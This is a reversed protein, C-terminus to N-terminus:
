PLERTVSRGSWDLLRGFARPRGGTFRQHLQKLHEIDESSWCRLLLTLGAYLPVTLLGAALLTPLAPWHGRLPSIAVATIAAALIIRLLRVWNPQMGIMRLALLLNAMAGFLAASVYAITAGGLGYARILWVDLVIKIVGIAVVLILITIQRDASILLSSGSQSVTSLACAFLCVAFVPAAPAYQAGYMFAIIPHCFVAGFAVLPAALLVLYTTSAVFRRGAVDRGQSLANAMMPLLMAGIVGPVLMAAGSALLYAVKFHGASDATGFMNLFFVEVESAAFFGITVTVAVLRMHRRVRRMLDDPLQTGPPTPPILPATQRQSMGYFIASSVLFVGLLAWVEADLLWAAVVMLLNLPTAVSAVIATARFNEFGKAIGVNFMYQSRLAIGVALFGFIARHDFGPAVHQGSLLLLLAVAALVVFLFWRQARRLYAITPAILAERGSGRLEAVFKIVASATGANTIAVGMAVLWIVASYGGYDTPGLHRAIFISTLMGLFYETYIGVSSFMTNRLAQARVTM